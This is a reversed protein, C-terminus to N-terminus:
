QLDHGRENPSNNEPTGNLLKIVRWLKQDDGTNSSDELVGPRKKPMILPWERRKAPM